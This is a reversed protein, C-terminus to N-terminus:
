AYKNQLLNRDHQSRTEIKLPAIDIVRHLYDFEINDFNADPYDEDDESSSCSDYEIKEVVEFGQVDANSQISQVDENRLCPRKDAHGITRNRPSSRKGTTTKRIRASPNATSKCKNSTSKSIKPNKCYLNKQALKILIIARADRENM